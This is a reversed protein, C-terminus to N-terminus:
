VPLSQQEGTQPNFRIHPPTSPINAYVAGDRSAALLERSKDDPGGAYALIIYRIIKVVTEMGEVSIHEYPGHFGYGGTGINPCPLGKYSLMAGDTGGRIYTLEANMGLANIAELATNTIHTPILEKMNSYQHVTKTIKVTGEGFRENLQEACAELSNQRAKLGCETFDRLAFIMQVKDTDGNMSMLYHFGDREKSERPTSSNLCMEHELEAAVTLANVLMGYGDGPHVSNGKVTVYMLSAEFNENEVCNEAGGDVTYAFDAGFLDKNFYKAGRGIEEDPTFAVAIKGHPLGYAKTQQIAELIEAIGAKDDAGLLTTGDTTIIEKGFLKTLHPFQEASIVLGNELKIDRGNGMRFKPNVKKATFAPATDMHAIFGITPVNEYGKTAPLFGYVYGNPEDNITDMTVGELGAERMEEMLYQAFKLQPKTSPVSKSNDSSTTEFQIYKLFRQEVTKGYM